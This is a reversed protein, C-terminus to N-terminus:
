YGAFITGKPNKEAYAPSIVGILPKDGVYMASALKGDESVRWYVFGHMTKLERGGFTKEASVDVFQWSDANIVHRNMFQRLREIAKHGDEPKSTGMQENWSKGEADFEVTYIIDDDLHWVMRHAKEDKSKPEGLHGIIQDATEGIAACAPQIALLFAFLLSLSLLYSIPM